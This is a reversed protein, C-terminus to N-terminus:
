TPKGIGPPGLIRLLWHGMSHKDQYSAHPGHAPLRTPYTPQGGGERPECGPARPCSFRVAQEWARPTRGAQWRGRRRVSWSTWECVCLPGTEGRHEQCRTRDYSGRFTQEPFLHSIGDHYHRHRKIAKPYITELALRAWAMPVKRCFASTRRADRGFSFM